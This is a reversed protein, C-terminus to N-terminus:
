SMHPRGERGATISGGRESFCVILVMGLERASPQKANTHVSHIPFHLSLLTYPFDRICAM